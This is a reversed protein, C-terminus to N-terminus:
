QSFLADATFFSTFPSDQNDFPNAVAWVEYFNWLSERPNEDDVFAFRLHNLMVIVPLRPNSNGKLYRLLLSLVYTPPLVGMGTYRVRRSRASASTYRQCHREDLLPAYRHCRSVLTLAPLKISYCISHSSKGQLSIDHRPPHVDAQTVADEEQTAAHEETAEEQKDLPEKQTIVAENKDEAKTPVDAKSTSEDNKSEM